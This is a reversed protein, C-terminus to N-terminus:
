SLRARWTVTRSALLASWMPIILILVTAVSLVGALSSVYSDTTHHLTLLTSRLLETQAHSFGAGGAAKELNEIEEFGRLDFTRGFFWSAVGVVTMYIALSAILIRTHKM